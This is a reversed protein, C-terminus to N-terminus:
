IKNKLKNFALQLADHQKKLVKFKTEWTEASETLVANRVELANLRKTLNEYQVNYDVIFNNYMTRMSDVTDIEQKKELLVNSKRGVIFTAVGGIAISIERWYDLFSNM